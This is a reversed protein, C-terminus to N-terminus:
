KAFINTKFPKNKSRSLTLYLQFSSLSRKEEQTNIEKYQEELKSIKYKIEDIEKSYQLIRIFRESM